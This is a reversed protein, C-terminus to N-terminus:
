RPERSFARKGELAQWILLMPVGVVVDRGRKLLSVALGIEAGVGFVPALAAYGAEQM